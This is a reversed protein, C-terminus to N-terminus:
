YAHKRMEPARDAVFTKAGLAGREVMAHSAFCAALIDHLEKYRLELVVYM